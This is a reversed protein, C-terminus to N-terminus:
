CSKGYNDLVIILDSMDIKYDRSLDAAPNWRPHIRPPNLTTNYFSGFADLIIVIDPMSVMGDGDIDGMLKIKVTGDTLVNNLLNIEYPVAVAEATITYNNCPTMSTTDWIFTVMTETDPALATVTKTDILHTENYYIKVDFTETLNGQNRVTVNIHVPWLPSAYTVTLDLEVKTVAVDRIIGIFIGNYVEHRMANGEANNMETDNLNLPSVGFGEVHFTVTLVPLPTYTTITSPYTLNAWIYGNPDDVILKKMPTQGLVKPATISTELIVSPDYTLNFVVNKLNEVDDITINIDFYTCPVLSPDRIEQPEVSIKPLVINSFYGNETTHTIEANESNYLKDNSITIPTDGLELVHFTIGALQGDGYAGLEADVLTQSLIIQGHTDNYDRVITVDFTTTGFRKLFEGEVVDTVNIIQKLYYIEAQWRYLDTANIVTLNVTFSNCPVLSPDVVRNPSIALKAVKPALPYLYKVLGNDVEPTLTGSPYQTLTTWDLDFTLTKSWKPYTENVAKIIKFQVQCLTGTGNFSWQNPPDPVAYAAVAKLIKHTADWDDLTFKKVFTWDNDQPTQFVHNTPLKGAMYQLTTNDFVIGVGWGRLRDADTITINIFFLNNVNTQPYHFTFNTTGIESPAPTEATWAGTWTGPGPNIVSVKNAPSAHTEKLPITATIALLLLAIVVIGTPRKYNHM